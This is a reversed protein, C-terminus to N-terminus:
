RHKYNLIIYLGMGITFTLNPLLSIDITGTKSVTYSAAYVDGFLTVVFTSIMIVVRFAIDIHKRLCWLCYWAVAVGVAGPIIISFIGMKIPNSVSISSMMLSPISIGLARSGFYILFGTMASIILIIKEFMIPENYVSFGIYFILGLIGSIIMIHTIINLIQAM